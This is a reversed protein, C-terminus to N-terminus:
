KNINAYIINSWLSYGKASPHFLDQAYLSPDKFMNETPTYLDIYQINNEAALKKIIENFKKTQRRFYFNYPPLLLSNTGLMPISVAFIKAKTNTRLKTIINLYNASFRAESVLSHIDNVGALVTIINPQDQIAPSILNNLIDSTKAGAYARDHLLVSSGASMKQAIGYAYSQEYNTVGVGATLSDGLATYVITKNKNGSGEIAYNYKTDPSNLGAHHIERYIYANALFLYGIILFIVSAFIIKIKKNKVKAM